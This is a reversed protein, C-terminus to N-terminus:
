RVPNTGSPPAPNSSPAADLPTLGTSVRGEAFLTPLSYRGRLILRGASAATNGLRQEYVLIEEARQDLVVLADAGTVTSITLMTAETNSTVLEAYAPPQLLNQGVLGALIGLGIGILWPTTPRSQRPSHLSTNSM